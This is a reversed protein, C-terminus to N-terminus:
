ADAVRRDAVPLEASELDQVSGAPGDVLAVSDDRAVLRRSRTATVLGSRLRQVESRARPELALLVGLATALAAGGAVILALLPRVGDLVGTATIGAVVAISAIGATTPAVAWPLMSRFSIGALKHVIVLNIPMVVLLSVLARSLSMGFLQDPESSGELALGVAVIVTLNIAAIAWLMTARVRPRAVAFLLPGTFNVLGKVIGVICLLKMATAGVEWEPGIVALVYSSSAALVLLAPVTTLMVLRICSSVVKRLEERDHQVRSFHALSVLGVPRTTLEMLGDVFRDALRYVGVVTPGFFIGMLLIYGRRNVWGGTNAIFVSSSFGFIDKAHSRSFRFRPRWDSIAWLLLVSMTSFTMHQIVLSWVGAGAIAAILGAAGGAVAAINTRLALKQFQLGRQVYAEQVIALGWIVISLCLVQLVPQLEPTSNVHAWWGSLAIGVGALVICFAFNIWFASDLHAEDLDKRQVIATSVGQEQILWILAVFAGAMTVVGFAEPGLIAALLIMFVTTIGRQGWTLAFAWQLSHRLSKEAAM